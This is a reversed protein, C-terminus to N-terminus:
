EEFKYVRFIYIKTDKDLYADKPLGAKHSCLNELFTKKDWGTDTAVQPLFVGSHYGKKIWVGDTGMKIEDINEILKPPTLISIEIHIKDLERINVPDFRYDNFAASYAMDSVALYLPERAILQGICGRLARNKHLTVFVAMEQRLKKSSPIEPQYKKGTELYFEISKRALKLLYKKESESLSFKEEEKKPFVISSYGVVRTSTTDKMADGSNAYKLIINEGNQFRNMIETFAYFAFYGCLESKGNLIDQQLSKWKKNHILDLTHNDIKKATQYDHYHSMDSSCVFLIKKESNEEVIKILSEALEDLLDFDRTSILIPVIKFDSLQYQLFPIQAEISHEPKHIFEYFVFRKNRSLLTETIEKDIPVKGLPTQYFDGNYVSVVNELYHHSPALIIITDYHRNALLSYGFAAVQGSYIYGAHPSLIGWPEIQRQEKKLSVNEFFKRLMNRLETKNDPYWKGAVAPKRLQSFLMTGALILALLFIYKKM